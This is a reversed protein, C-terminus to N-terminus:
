IKQQLTNHIKKCHKIIDIEENSITMYQKALTLANYLISEKIYPYFNNIDFQTFSCNEKNNIKNIWNIKAKHKEM